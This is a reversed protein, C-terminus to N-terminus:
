LSSRELLWGNMENHVSLQAQTKSGDTITHTHPHTLSWSEDHSRFSGSHQFPLDSPWHWLVRQSWKFGFLLCFKFLLAPANHKFREPGPTVTRFRTLAATLEQVLIVECEVHELRLYQHLWVNRSYMYGETASCTKCTCTIKFCTWAWLTECLEGGSSARHARVWSWVALTAENPNLM